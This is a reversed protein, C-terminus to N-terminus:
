YSKGDELRRQNGKEPDRLYEGTHATVEGSSDVFYGDNFRWAVSRYADALQCGYLYHCAEVVTSFPLLAAQSTAHTYCEQWTGITRWVPMEESAPKTLFSGSEKEVSLRKQIFCSPESGAAGAFPSYLALVAVITFFNLM